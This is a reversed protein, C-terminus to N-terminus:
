RPEAKNAGAERPWFARVRLLEPPPGPSLATIAVPDDKGPATLMLGGVEELNVVTVSAGSPLQVDHRPLTEDLRAAVGPETVLVHRIQADFPILPRGEHLRDLSYDSDGGHSSFLHRFDENQDYGLALVRYQPLYYSLHRFSSPVRPGGPASLVVTSEAPYRAVFETLDRWHADNEPIAYQRVLGVFSNDVPPMDDSASAASTAPVLSDNSRAGDIVAGPIWLFAATNVVVVAVAAAVVSGSPRVGPARAGPAAVWARQVVILLLLVAAPLLFLVYGVQGTHGLLYVALAPVTWLGIFWSVERSLRPRQLDARCAIPLALAAALGLLLGAAVFAVNRGIGALSGSFVSTPGGALEALAASEHLYAQLGGALWLLPILWALTGVTCLAVAGVRQNWPFALLAWLYLPALLAMGTQRFSGLVVLVVTAGILAPLSRNAHARWAALAFAVVLAGEPAYTLAVASYYWLLPSTGLILAGTIALARNGLLDRVLLYFLAPTVAGAAISIITLSLNPDGTIRNILSGAFVYGIYGPPHPQHQAINFAETGLALQVADWNVLYESRLPWRAAVFGVLVLVFVVGDRRMAASGASRAWRGVMPVVAAHYEAGVM